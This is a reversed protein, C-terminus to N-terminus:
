SRTRTSERARSTLADRLTDHVAPRHGLVYQKGLKEAHVVVGGSM